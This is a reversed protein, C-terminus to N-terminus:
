AAVEDFKTAENGFSHWGARSERAFVDARRAHPMVRDCLSYFEDPKRSHERAIGDFITQPIATQKPNGLTAVVIVEGTTRVRYGTGMRIKGGPTTKRWVLLSKYEFGWAKVCEIALPLQPATAWCCLLCDMSALKGVPLSIIQADNMLEYKALASKKAGEKSYLDFGWPPDIVIHEYYLPLLPDFFWDIM